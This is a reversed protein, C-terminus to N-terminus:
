PRAGPSASSTRSVETPEALSLAEALDDPSLGLGAAESTIRELFSRVRQEHQLHAEASPAEAVFTGQGRRTELIGETELLGYAKAATNRNIRQEVALQRVTPVRDGPRLAGSIVLSRLQEVVQAYLPVSSGPDVRLHM